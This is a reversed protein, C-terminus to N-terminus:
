VTPAVKSFTIDIKPRNVNQRPLQQDSIAEDNDKVPKLVCIEDYKVEKVDNEYIDNIELVSLEDDVGTFAAPLEEGSNGDNADVPELVCM